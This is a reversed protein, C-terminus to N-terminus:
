RSGLEEEILDLIEQQLKLLFNIRYRIADVEVRKLEVSSELRPM